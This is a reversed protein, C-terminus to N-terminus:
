HGSDFDNTLLWGNSSLGDIQNVAGYHVVSSTENIEEKERERPKQMREKKRSELKSQKREGEVNLKYTHKYTSM